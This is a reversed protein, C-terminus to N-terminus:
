YHDGQGRLAGWPPREVQAGHLKSVKCYLRMIVDNKHAYIIDIEESRLNWPSNAILRNAYPDFNYVIEEIGGIDEPPQLSDEKRSNGNVALQRVGGELQDLNVTGSPEAADVGDEDETSPDSELAPIIEDEAADEVAEEARAPVTAIPASSSELPALDV